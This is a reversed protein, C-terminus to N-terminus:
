CKNNGGSIIVEFAPSNEKEFDFITLGWLHSIEHQAVVAKFFDGSTMIEGKQSGFRQIGCNTAEVDIWLWRFTDIKKGPFSLCGENTPLLIESHNVIQPNILVQGMVLCVRKLIGIQNAALGVGTIGNHKIAKKNHRILEDQLKRGIKLGEKLLVPECRLRLFKEDNKIIM